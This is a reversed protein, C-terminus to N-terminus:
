IAAYRWLKMLKLLMHLTKRYKYTLFYMRFVIVEYLRSHPLSVTFIPPCLRRATGRVIDVIVSGDWQRGLVMRACVMLKFLM